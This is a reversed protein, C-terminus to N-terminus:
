SLNFLGLKEVGVVIIVFNYLKKRQPNMASM